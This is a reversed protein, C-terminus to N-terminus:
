GQAREHVRAPRLLYTAENTTSRMVDSDDLVGGRRRRRGGAGGGELDEELVGNGMGRRSTRRRGGALARQVRVLVGDRQGPLRHGQRSRPANRRLRRRGRGFCLGHRCRWSRQRWRRPRLWQRHHCGAGNSWDRLGLGWLWRLWRLRGLWRLQGLGGGQFVIEVEVGFAFGVRRVTASATRAPQVPAIRPSTVVPFHEPARPSAFRM